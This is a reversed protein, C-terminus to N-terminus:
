GSGATNKKTKNQHKLKLIPPGRPMITGSGGVHKLGSLRYTAVCCLHCQPWCLVSPMTAVCCLHCVRDNPKETPPMPGLDDLISDIHRSNREWGGARVLQVWSNVSTELRSSQELLTLLASVPPDTDTGTGTGTGTGTAPDPDDAPTDQALAAAEEEFTLWEVRAM